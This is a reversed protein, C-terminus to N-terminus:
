GGFLAAAERRFEDESGCVERLHSLVLRRFERRTWALANTVGSVKMGYREALRVYSIDEDGDLHYAEFLQFASERNRERCLTNLEEIALAFLGRMWERAFFDEISDPSALSAADMTTRGMEEEAAPFDMALHQIQGGRKQRSAAKDENMVFSDVCLRLYTRLRGKSPEFRALLERALLGAFFGQTLDQADAIDRNWRLRVYKYVPRWYVECLSALAQQREAADSSRVRSIASIRTAPFCDNKSAQLM